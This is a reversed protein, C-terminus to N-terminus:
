RLKCIEFEKKVGEIIKEIKEEKLSVLKKIDPNIIEKDTRFRQLFYKKTPKLWNVIKISDSYNLGPALTTRFEYNIKEEKLLKISKEIKKIDIKVGSYEEYKEKSAKIDMAIYDILKKEILDKLLDPNSGNTDLKIPYGLEKIKKCFNLLNKHITPEGGSIVVGEILGKKEKLFDFIDRESIKPQNKIKELLVLESSYCFPCRFNCGILFIVCAIKEPYDILTLKQFGGILVFYKVLCCIM